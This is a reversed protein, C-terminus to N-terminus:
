SAQRAIERLQVEAHSALVESIQKKLPKGGEEILSGLLLNGHYSNDPLPNREYAFVSRGYTKGIWDLHYRPLVAIGIKYKPTDDDRKANLTFSIAEEDDRWNISEEIWGDQRGDEKQHFQFMAGTAHVVGCLERVWDPAM